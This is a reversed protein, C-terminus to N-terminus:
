ESLELVVDGIQLTAGLPVRQAQHPSCRQGNVWTGNTSGLDELSWHAGDWRLRAHWGSVFRDGLVLDNEEDAGITTESGLSLVHGPQLRPDTGSAVIRVRGPATGPEPAAKEVRPRMERGVAIVVALLALYILGIFVYKVVLLGGTADM